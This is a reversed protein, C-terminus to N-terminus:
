NRRLDKLNNMLRENTKQICLLIEVWNKKALNLKQKMIKKLPVKKKIIKTEKNKGEGVTVVEDVEVM